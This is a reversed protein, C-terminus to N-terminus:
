NEGRGEGWGLAEMTIISIQFGLVSQDYIGFLTQPVETCTNGFPM